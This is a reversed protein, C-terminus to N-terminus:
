KSMTMVAAIANATAEVNNQNLGAVCMRGSRLLYVGHEERLKDVQEASLGTYTFMGKQNLYRDLTVSQVKAFLAAHIAHRMAHIRERM